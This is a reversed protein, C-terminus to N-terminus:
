DTCRRPMAVRDYLQVCAENGVLDIVGDGLITGDLRNERFSSPEPIPCSRAPFNATWTRPPGLQQPRRHIALCPLPRHGFRLLSPLEFDVDLVLGLFEAPLETVFVPLLALLSPICGLLTGQEVCVSLLKIRLSSQLQRPNKAQCTCMRM